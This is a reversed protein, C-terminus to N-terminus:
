GKETNQTIGAWTDIANKANGTHTGPTFDCIHPLVWLAFIGVILAVALSLTEWLLVVPYAPSEPTGQEFTRM